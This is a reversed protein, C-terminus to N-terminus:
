FLFNEMKLKTQLSVTTANCVTHAHPHFIAQRELSSPFRNFFALHSHMFQTMAWSVFSVKFDSHFLTNFCYAISEVVLL